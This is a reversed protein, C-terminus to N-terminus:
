NACYGTYQRYTRLCPIFAIYGTWNIVPRRRNQGIQSDLQTPCEDGTVTEQLDQLSVLNIVTAPGSVWGVM